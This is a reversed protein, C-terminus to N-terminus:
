LEIRLGAVPGANSCYVGLAVLISIFCNRRIVHQSVFSWSCNTILDLGPNRRYLRQGNYRKSTYRQYLRQSTYKLSRLPVTNYIKIFVSLASVEPLRVYQDSDVRFTFQFKTTVVAEGTEPDVVRAAVSTRIRDSEPATDVM